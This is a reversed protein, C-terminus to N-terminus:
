GKRDDVILGIEILRERLYDGATIPQDRRPHEADVCGPLVDILFDDNFHLFFPISYRSRESWPPPPNVVRHTTSKLRHNTLRQLMDGVNCVITDVDTTIPLWSGDPRLLELGPEDSGILLTIVNIDEHAASRVAGATELPSGLLPPYHLPRLITEGHSVKDDFWNPELDLGRAILSLATRGTSWLAEYLEELAARFGEPAAPWVNPPHRPSLREPPPGVHWFEKLDAVAQDKAKEVGFPTYGRQGGGKPDHLAQKEDLPLAFFAAVADRAARRQRDSVSHGRFGVFGHQALAQMLETVLGAIRNPDAALSLDLVPIEVHSAM